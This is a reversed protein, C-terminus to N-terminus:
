KQRRVLTQLPENTKLLFDILLLMLVRLVRLPCTLPCTFFRSFERRKFKLLYDILFISLSGPCTASVYFFISSKRRKFKLLFNILLLMQVRLPCRSVYVSGFIKSEFNLGARRERKGVNCFKTIKM